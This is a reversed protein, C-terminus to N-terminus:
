ISPISEANIFQELIVKEEKIRKEAESDKPKVKKREELIWKFLERQQDEPIPQHVKVRETTSPSLVAEEPTLTTVVTASPINAAAKSDEEAKDKKRPKMFIYAPSWWHLYTLQGSVGLALNSIILVRWIAKSRRSLFGQPLPRPPPLPSAPVDIKRM